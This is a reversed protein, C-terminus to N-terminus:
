RQHHAAAHSTSFHLLSPQVKSVNGSMWQRVSVECVPTSCLRMCLTCHTLQLLSWSISLASLQWKDCSHCSGGASLSSKSNGLRVAPAAGLAAAVESPRRAHAHLRSSWTSLIFCSRGHGNLLLVCNRASRQTFAVDSCVHFASITVAVLASITDCTRCTGHGSLMCAPVPSQVDPLAAPPRRNAPSTPPM